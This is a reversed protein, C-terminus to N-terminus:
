HFLAVRVRAHVGSAPHSHPDKVATKVLEMEWGESGPPNVSKAHESLPSGSLVPDKEKSDELYSGLGM